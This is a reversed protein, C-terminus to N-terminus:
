VTGVRKLAIKQMGGAQKVGESIAEYRVGGIQFQWAKKSTGVVFIDGGSSSLVPFYLEYLTTEMPFGFRVSEGSSMAQLTCPVESHILAMGGTGIGGDGVSATYGYVDAVAGAMSAGVSAPLSPSGFASM